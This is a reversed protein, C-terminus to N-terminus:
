RVPGYSNGVRSAGVQIVTCSGVRQSKPRYYTTHAMDAQPQFTMAYTARM